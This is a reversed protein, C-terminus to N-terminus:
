RPHPRPATNTRRTTTPSPGVHARPRSADVRSTRGQDPTPVGTVPTPTVAERGRRQERLDGGVPTFARRTERRRDDRSSVLREPSACANSRQFRATRGRTSLCLTRVRADRMGRAAWALPRSRTATWRRVWAPSLPRTRRDCRWADDSPGGDRIMGAGWPRFIQSRRISSARPQCRGAKRPARLDPPNRRSRCRSPRGLALRRPSSALAAASQSADLARCEVQAAGSPKWRVRDARMLRQRRACARDRLRSRALYPPSRTGCKM